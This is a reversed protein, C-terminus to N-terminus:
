KVLFEGCWDTEKVSPWAEYPHFVWCQEYSSENQAHTYVQPPYRHCSGPKGPVSPAVWFRCELCSLTMEVSQLMGQYPCGSFEQQRPLANANVTLRTLSHYVAKRLARPRRASVMEQCM